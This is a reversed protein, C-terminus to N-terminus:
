TFLKLRTLLGPEFQYEFDPRTSHNQRFMRLSTKAIPTRLFIALNPSQSLSHIPWIKLQNITGSTNNVTISTIM